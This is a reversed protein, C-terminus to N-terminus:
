STSVNGVRSLNLYHRLAHVMDVVPRLSALDAHKACFRILKSKGDQTLERHEAGGAESSRILATPHDELFLAFLDKGVLDELEWNIGKHSANLSDFSRKLAAPDVSGTAPMVPKLRLVDRYEVISVDISRAGTVANRGPTDDDFLGLFRYVPRGAPSLYAASLNRLTILERIVGRTGGRDGQGAAVIALGELISRGTEAEFLRAAVDILAVDSTGEVLVCRPKLRWGKSVGYQAVIDTQGPAMEADSPVSPACSRATTASRSM